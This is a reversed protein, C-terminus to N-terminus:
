FHNAGKPVQKYLKNTAFLVIGLKSSISGRYQPWARGQPNQTDGDKADQAGLMTIQLGRGTIELNVCLQINLPLGIQDQFRRESNRKKAVGALTVGSTVGSLWDIEWWRLARWGKVSKGRGESDCLHEQFLLILRNYFKDKNTVIEWPYDQKILHSTLSQTGTNHLDNYSINTWCKTSESVAGTVTNVTLPTLLVKSLEAISSVTLFSLVTTIFTCNVFISLVIYTEVHLWRDREKVTFERCPLPM